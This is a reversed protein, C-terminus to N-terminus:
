WAIRPSAQTSASGAAAARASTPWYAPRAGGRAALSQDVGDHIRTFVRPVGFIITPRAVGIDKALNGINGLIAASTGCYILLHVEVIQGMLHGWPLM